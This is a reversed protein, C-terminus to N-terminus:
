DFQALDLRYINVSKAVTVGLEYRIMMAALMKGDILKLRKQQQGEVYKLAAKTFSSTTIFVGKNINQMAGVFAQIETVSVHNNETYRKAQIYIADLGLKDENIVGDIGGDKTYSTAHGAKEDYGYGMKLLLKVVLSEFSAPSMNRLADLISDITENYHATFADLIKEESTKDDDGVPDPISPKEYAVNAYRPKEGEIEVIKFYKNPSTWAMDLGVCHRRVADSVVNLPMKAKFPYADREKMIGCIEKITLAKDNGLIEQVVEPITM